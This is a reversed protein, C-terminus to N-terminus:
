FSFSFDAYLSRPEGVFYRYEGFAYDAREAYRVDALNSIRLGAGFRPTFQYRARLNLLDYGEYKHENSPELYYAGVHVWELETSGQDNFNWLLRTSGLTRPATDIDNGKIDEGENVGAPKANNAYIHRAYTADVALNWRAALQWNLSGEIGYHNTEGDNVNRRDADAFIVNKKHMAFAVLSFESRAFSGRLGAEISNLREPEIDAVQQGNQLRYLETAQPPRFAHKASAVLSLQEGLQQNVGLDFSWNGFNDTRDSPRSYRCPRDECLSGDEATSGDIMHNTYDYHIANYRLGGTLLTTSAVQWDINVFLGAAISNVSYDYHRGIPFIGSWPVADFQTKTLWASTYELDMGSRWRLAADTNAYYAAQIGAGKQGNEELPQGPLFHQLFESDIYRVFPTLQLSDDDGMTRTWRSYARAVSNDRFAEPNPNEQLRDGDKYANEGEIFGATDQNLNSVSLLSEAQWLAGDFDHRYNLKQQGFGSDDKYGGDHAANISLRGANSGAQYSYGFKIRRYDHPGAELDINGGTSPAPPLSVVNIVGHMANAGHSTTGPGRLVEIRQAQETNVDFLQNVNCFGTGRLPVGDEAMYFNGCSGPGTFVPSRIATLHEQGNGRSIWTGPVRTLLQNVHVADVMEIASRDVVSISSSVSSLPQEVRTATVVMNELDLAEATGPWIGAALLTILILNRM